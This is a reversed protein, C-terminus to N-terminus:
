IGDYVCRELHEVFQGLIFPSAKGISKDPDITLSAKLTPRLFATWAPKIKKYKEKKQSGALVFEFEGIERTNVFLKVPGNLAHDRIDFHIGVGIPTLMPNIESISAPTTSEFAESSIHINEAPIAVGAVKIAFQTITAPAFTNLLIFQFGNGASKLSGPVILKRM